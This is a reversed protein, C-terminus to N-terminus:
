QSNDNNMEKLLNSFFMIMVTPAIFMCWGAWMTVFENVGSETMKIMCIVAPVLSLYIGLLGAEHAELKSLFQKIAM